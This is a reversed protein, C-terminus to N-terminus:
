LPYYFDKSLFNIRGEILDKNDGANTKSLLLNIYGEKSIDYCHNNMCKYSNNERILKNFCKPCQM